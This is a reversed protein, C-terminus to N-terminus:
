VRAAGQDFYRQLGVALGNLNPTVLSIVFQEVQPALRSALFSPMGPVRDAHVVLDGSVGIRTTHEPDDPDPEFTNIGSCDYLAAVGKSCPSQAWEVTYKDPAWVATDIWGLLDRTLFPRLAMPMTDAMGQWRRVIKLRGDKLTRRSQTEISEINDLFPVIAEMRAIMTDLVLAAPHSVRSTQSFRV